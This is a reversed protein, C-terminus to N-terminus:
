HISYLLKKCEFADFLPRSTPSFHKQVQGFGLRFDERFCRSEQIGSGM